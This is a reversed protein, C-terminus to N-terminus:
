WRLVRAGLAAGAAAVVLVATGYAPIVFLAMDVSCFFSYIAAALGGAALGAAGGALAPRTPAGASLAWLLGALPALALIPVSILCTWLDPKDLAMALGAAGGQAIARVFLAAVGALAAGLALARLARPAAPRILAWALALALAALAAPVLTKAVLSSALVAGLGERPGWFLAFALASAGLGGALALSLRAGPRPAPHTDAALAAILDRTDM